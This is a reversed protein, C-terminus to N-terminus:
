IETVIIVTKSRHLLCKCSVKGSFSDLYLIAFSKHRVSLCAQRPIGAKVKSDRPKVACASNGHFAEDVGTSVPYRPEIELVPVFRKKRFTWM